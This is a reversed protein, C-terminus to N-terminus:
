HSIELAHSTAFRVVELEAATSVKDLIGDIQEMVADEILFEQCNGCQMVPLGKLIVITEDTVKFPLDTVVPQLDAGCVQCRM